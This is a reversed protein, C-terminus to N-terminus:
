FSFDYYSDRSGLLLGSGDTQNYRGTERNLLVSKWGKKTRKFMHRSGNTDREFSYTQDESMGNSDTRTAKDEQVTVVAHKADWATVTAGHRDSWYLVTAPAGVVPDQDNFTRSQIHNILSGTETGLNMGVSKSM